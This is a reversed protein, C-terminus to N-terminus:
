ISATRPSTGGVARITPRRSDVKGTKRNGFGSTTSQWGFSAVLSGNPHVRHTASMEKRNSARPKEPKAISCLPAPMVCRSGSLVVTRPSIWPEMPHVRTSGIAGAPRYHLPQGGHHHALSAASPQHLRLPQRRRRLPAHNRQRRSPVRDAERNRSRGSHDRRLCSVGATKRRPSGRQRWRFSGKEDALLSFLIQHPSDIAGQWWTRQESIPKPRRCKGPPSVSNAPQRQCRGVLHRTRALPRLFALLPGVPRFGCIANGASPGKVVRCSNNGPQYLVISTAENNENCAVALMTGDRSWAM